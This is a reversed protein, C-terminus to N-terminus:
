VGLSLNRGRVMFRNVTRHYGDYWYSGDQLYLFQPNANEMRDSKTVVYIEVSTIRAREGSTLTYNGMGWMPPNPIPNGDRDFYAFMLHDVHTAVTKYVPASWAMSDRSWEWVTQVITSNSPNRLYAVTETTSDDDFDGTFILQYTSALEFDNRLSDSWLQGPVDRSIDDSDGNADNFAMLGILKFDRAMRQIVMRSEQNEAVRSADKAAGRAAGYYLSFLSTLLVMGLSLGIMTEVLSVGACRKLGRPSARGNIRKRAM